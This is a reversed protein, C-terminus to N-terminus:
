WSHFRPKDIYEESSDSLSLSDPHFDSDETTSSM